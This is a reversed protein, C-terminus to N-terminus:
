ELQLKAERIVAAWRAVDKALFERFQAPTDGVVEAGEGSVLQQRVDPRKLIAVVDANIRSIIEPPTGAPAVLAYWTALDYGPLGLEALSPMDPLLSSRKLSSVGLGVLKGSTLFPKAAAVNTQMLHVHGGVVDTRAPGAGKYHVALIDIDAMKKLLEMALHISTGAGSTAYTLEKPRAKALAILQKLSRAPLSPHAVLVNPASVVNGIPAFDALPEFPLKKVLTANITHAPTIMLLTYGDPPAKAVSATGIIAGAGARNEVLVPVSWVENLHQALPRALLDAGGGPAYPVVIRVPKAPFKSQALALPAAISLCAAVAAVGLDTVYRM